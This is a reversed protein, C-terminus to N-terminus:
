IHEATGLQLQEPQQQRIIESLLEVCVILAEDCRIDGQAGGM